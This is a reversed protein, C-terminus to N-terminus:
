RSEPNLIRGYITLATKNSMTTAEDIMLSFPADNKVLYQLLKKSMASAIYKIINGCAQHSFLMSGVDLGNKEQLQVINRHVRFSLHKWAITYATRFIRCTVEIKAANQEHWVTTAKKSSEEILERSRLKLEAISSGHAYSKQHEQMKDHLKKSNTATIGKLWERSISIREKSSMCNSLSGVTSCTTCIIGVTFGDNLRKASLWPRTKKWDSFQSQTCVNPVLDATSEHIEDFQMGEAREAEHQIPQFVADTEELLAYNTDRDSRHLSVYHNEGHLGIYIPQCQRAAEQAPGAPQLITTHGNDHLIHIGRGISCSVARLMMEDLWEGARSQKSLYCDASKYQRSILFKEDVLNNNRLHSVAQSRLMTVDVVFNQPQGQSMLQEVVAHLACDGYRTVDTVTFGQAAAVKTLKSLPDAQDYV